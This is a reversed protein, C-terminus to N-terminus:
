ATGVWGLGKGANWDHHAGVTTSAGVGGLGVLKPTLKVIVRETDVGSGQRFWRTLM